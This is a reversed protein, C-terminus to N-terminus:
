RIWKVRIFLYYPRSITNWMNTPPGQGMVTIFWDHKDRGGGGVEFICLCLFSWVTFLKWSKLHNKVALREADNLTTERCRRMVPLAGSTNTSGYTLVLAVPRLGRVASRFWDPNTQYRTEHFKQLLKLFIRSVCICHFLTVKFISWKGHWSFTCTDVHVWEPTLYVYEAKKQWGAAGTARDKEMAEKVDSPHLSYNGELRAPVRRCRM